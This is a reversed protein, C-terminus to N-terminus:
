SRSAAHRLGALIQQPNASPQPLKTVSTKEDIKYELLSLKGLAELADPLTTAHPDEDTTGFKERLRREMERSVKLALM